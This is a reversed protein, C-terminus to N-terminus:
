VEQTSPNAAKALWSKAHTSLLTEVERISMSKFNLLRTLGNQYSVMLWLYSWANPNWSMRNVSTFPHQEVPVSTLQHNYLTDHSKGMRVNQRLDMLNDHFIIGFRNECERYNAPMYHYDKCTKKDNKKENNKGSVNQQEKLFDITKVFSNLQRKRPLLKETYLLQHPFITLIEGALTGHAICNAYDSVTIAYTPANTALIPCYKYGHERLPIVYSHTYNFGLADDSSIVSCPWHTMWAGDVIIGRQLHNQPMSTEELDWFKYSRDVSASALYRKEHYPVLAVMSVANHHASFHQFADIFRTDKRVNLLLPSTTTLDWLAIYGNTYGAAIIDHGREKTWSLKSCQWNQKNNDYKSLNIILTAIPDTKYIPWSHHETREFKLEDAFPLSYINVCGDSCAAALLGMRRLEGKREETKYNCLGVDQYCGSPCWELCWVTGSNHAIAYALTPPRSTSNNKHDLQGVDWIQIVNSETYSKGVAYESEMTPHTSIAVYQTPNKTYMPLPIPLWASAWIPGGTFFTPVDEYINGEFRSMRKWNGSVSDDTNKWSNANVFKVAMSSMLEPLYKAADENKLLAFANPMYDQFLDLEFNKSEFTLTWYLAAKYSEISYPKQEKNLFSAKNSTRTSDSSVQTVRASSRIKRVIEDNFESISEDSSTSSIVEDDRKFDDDDCKVYEENSHSKAIHNEIEDRTDALFKCIKCMFNEQPTFNCQSYHECISKYSSCMYTCGIQRCSVSGRSALEKKWLGKWVPPVKKKLEPEQIANKLTTSDLKIRRTTCPNQERMSEAYKQIKPVAKEAAKRKVKETLVAPVEQSKNRELQRHYREHIEMSSPMMVAHCIPCTMMLAQKEEQSKGCFQMHSIFGSASRRASGCKECTLNKKKKVAFSLVSRLLKIDNEFDLKVEDQRWAMNNHRYLNHSHWQKKLVQQECKACTVLQMDKAINAADMNGIEIDAAAADADHLNSENKTEKSQSVYKKEATKPIYEMDSYDQVTGRGRGRGRGHRGRNQGRRRGKGRGIQKETEVIDTIESGDSSGSADQNIAIKSARRKGCAMVEITTDPIEKSTGYVEPKKKSTNENASNNVTKRPRGRKRAVPKVSISLQNQEGDKVDTENMQYADEHIVDDMKRSDTNTTESVFTGLSSHANDHFAQSQIEQRTDHKQEDYVTDEVTCTETLNVNTLASQIRNASSQGLISLDAISEVKVLTLETENCIKISNKDAPLSEIPKAPTTTVKSKARVVKIKRMNVEEDVNKRETFLAKM